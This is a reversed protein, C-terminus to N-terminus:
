LSMFMRLSVIILIVAFIRRLMTKPLTHAAKVGIPAMLISTPIIMLIAPLSIYGISYPPLQAEHALGTVIYGMTGPLSILIGLAAGTGIARQIPMGLYSMLPITMIAGGIGIMAAVGGIFACIARQVRLAIEKVAEGAIKDRGLAMYIAILLTIVSFIRKLVDGDIMAAFFSGAVVGVVIFPGWARVRDMDVSGRKFHAIASSSGTAFVIALSTGVALHMIESGGFGLSNFAFFLAPVFLIGGGVGLLGSLFGGAAGIAMLLLVLEVILMTDTPM